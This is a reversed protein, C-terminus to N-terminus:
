RYQAAYELTQELIDYVKDAAYNNDFYRRAGAAFAHRRSPTADMMKAIAEALAQPRGAAVAIGAGSENVIRAGEGALSAIIPKGCALYCQVKYPVTLAFIPIDKLSVLMADAHAFFKPMAEEPHRGLFHFREGLGNEVVLRRVRAEDRGSGVIVWHLDERGRLLVAAAVLTDFDQSEGINGAFMLRFGEQPVLAAYDPAQEPTLPRYSDPATNPLLRIRAPPVGFRTIMDNFAASQVMVLDARRYLWGCIANLLGVVLRNRLGLTYTASEPWIDQVWYVLGCGTKWKQLIGPLVMFVPSLQSVFVVDPRAKALLVKISAAVPFTIYNVFLSLASKGRPVTWARHILIKGWRETRNSRNSYGDFFRGSPYNPVATCVSVDHGRDAM